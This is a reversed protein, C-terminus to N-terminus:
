HDEKWYYFSFCIILNSLYLSGWKNWTLPFFFPSGLGRVMSLLVGLCEELLIWWWFCCGAKCILCIYGLRSRLRWPVNCRVVAQTQTLFRSCYRNRQGDWGLYCHKCCCFHNYDLARKKKLFINIEAKGFIAIPSIRRECQKKKERERRKMVKIKEFKVKQFRWNKKKKMFIKVGMITKKEQM